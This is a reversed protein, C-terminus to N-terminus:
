SPQSPTAHLTFCHGNPGAHNSSATVGVVACWGASHEWMPMQSRDVPLHVHRVPKPPLTKDV